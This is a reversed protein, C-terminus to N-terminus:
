AARRVPLAQTGHPILLRLWPLSESDGAVEPREVLRIFESLGAALELRALSAGLCFHIGHGFTLHPNGARDIRFEEAGDFAESDRNAAAPLLYVRDGASIAQGEFTVDRVARRVIVNGPGFYRLCEEVAPGMLEPERKLRDWSGPNRMLVLLANNMALQITKYGADLILTCTALLEVESLTGDRDNAEVLGSLINDAPETRYHEVLALLYREFELMAAAARENRGPDGLAGNIFLGLEEAWAKLRSGDEAPVGFIGAIMQAPLPVCYAAMLDVTEGAELRRVVDAALEAAIEEARGRLVKVRRPTFSKHVLGRLRTHDPPSLFVLWRSLISVLRELRERDPGTVRDFYPGIRDSGFADDRLAAVVGPYGAVLWAKHRTNWLVPAEERLRAFYAFPDASMEPGTLDVSALEGLEATLSAM